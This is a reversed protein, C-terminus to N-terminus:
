TTCQSCRACRDVARVEPLIRVHIDSRDRKVHVAGQDPDQCLVARLLDETGRRVEEAILADVQAAMLDLLQIELDHCFLLVRTRLLIWFEVSYADPVANDVLVLRIECM